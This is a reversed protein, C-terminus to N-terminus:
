LFTRQILTQAYNTRAFRAEGPWRKFSFEMGISQYATTRVELSWFGGLLLELLYHKM